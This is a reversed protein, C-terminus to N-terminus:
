SLKENLMNKVTLEIDEYKRFSENSDVKVNNEIDKFKKNIISIFENYNVNPIDGFESM